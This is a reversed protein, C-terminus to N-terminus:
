FYDTVSKRTTLDLIIKYKISNSPLLIDIVVERIQRTRNEIIVSWYQAISVINLSKISLSFSMKFQRCNLRQIKEHCRSMSSFLRERSVISLSWLFWGKWIASGCIYSRYYDYVICIVYSTWPLSCLFKRRQRWLRTTWLSLRSQYGGRDSIILDRAESQICKSLRKLFERICSWVFVIIESSITPSEHRVFILLENIVWWTRDSITLVHVSRDNEPDDFFQSRLLRSRSIEWSHSWCM